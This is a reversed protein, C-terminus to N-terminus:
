RPRRSCRGRAPKKDWFPKFMFPLDVWMQGDQANRFLMGKVVPVGWKQLIFRTKECWLAYLDSEHSDVPVAAALDDYLTSYDM